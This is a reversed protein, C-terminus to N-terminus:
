SRSRKEDMLAEVGARLAEEETPSLERGQFLRIYEGLLNGKNEEAMSELDYDPRTNDRIQCLIGDNQLDQRIQELNLRHESSSYGVLTVDYLNQLGKEEAMRHIATRIQWPASQPNLEVEAEYCARQACVIKKVTCGEPTLDCLWFGHDGTESIDQPEISGCYRIHNELASAQHIHGLAVYDMPLSRLWQASLPLYHSQASVADGHVMLIDYESEKQPHWRDEMSSAMEKETWGFTHITTKLEPFEIKSIGAPAITVQPCWEIRSYVGGDMLPDHNGPTVVFRPGDLRSLIANLNRIEDIRVDESHFLDGACLILDVKNENAFAVVAEATKLLESKRRKSFDSGYRQPATSKGIHWDGTHIFRM